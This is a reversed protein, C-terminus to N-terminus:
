RQNVYRKKRIYYILPNTVKRRGVLKNKSLTGLLEALEKKEIGLGESISGASRAGELLLELVREGLTDRGDEKAKKLIEGVKERDLIGWSAMKCFEDPQCILPANEAVKACSPPLYWKSKGFDQPNPNETMGFGLHYFINMREIPQEKFFPPDCNDGAEIITPVVEDLLIGIDEQNLNFSSERDFIKTSPMLRAYSLFSTLLITIAYNRQGSSVGMMSLKVCPPFLDEKLDGSVKEIRKTVKLLSKVMGIIKEHVPHPGEQIKPSARQIYDYCKKRVYRSYAEFFEGKTLFVYPGIIYNTTIDIVDYVEDWRLAFEILAGKADRLRFLDEKPFYIGLEEVLIMRKMPNELNALVPLEHVEVLESIEEIAESGFYKVLRTVILKEYASLSALVEPAHPTKALGQFLLFLSIIDDEEDMEIYKENNKESSRAISLRVIRPEIGNLDINLYKGYRESFPNFVVM